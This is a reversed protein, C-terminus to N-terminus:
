EGADMLLDSDPDPSFAADAIAAIRSNIKTTFSYV